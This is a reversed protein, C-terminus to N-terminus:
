FGRGRARPGGAGRKAGPAMGDGGAREVGGDARESAIACGRVGERRERVGELGRPGRESGEGGGRAHEPGELGGRRAESRWGAAAHEREAGWGCGRKNAMADARVGEGGERVGELGRPGRESGGGRKRAHEPGELGGERDRPAIGGGGAGERRGV